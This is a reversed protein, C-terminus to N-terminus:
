RVVVPISIKTQTIGASVQAKMKTSKPLYGVNLKYMSYM